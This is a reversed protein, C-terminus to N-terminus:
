GLHRVLERRLPTFNVDAEGSGADDVRVGVDVGPHDKGVGTTSLKPAWDKPIAIGRVPDPEGGGLRFTVPLPADVAIPWVVVEPRGM